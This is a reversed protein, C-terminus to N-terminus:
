GNQSQTRLLTAWFAASIRMCPNEPGAISGYLSVRIRRHLLFFPVAPCASQRARRCGSACFSSLLMVNTLVLNHRSPIENPMVETPGALTTSRARGGRRSVAASGTVEATGNKLAAQRPMHSPDLDFHSWRVRLAESGQLRYSFMLLTPRPPGR